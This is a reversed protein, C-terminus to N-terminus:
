WAVSVDGPAPDLLGITGVPDQENFGLGDFTIVDAFAPSAVQWVLVAALTTLRMRVVEWSPCPRSCSPASSGGYAAVHIPKNPPVCPDGWSRM